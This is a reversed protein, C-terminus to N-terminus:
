WPIQYRWWKWLNISNFKHSFGSSGWWFSERHIKRIWKKASRKKRHTYARALLLKHHSRAVCFKQMCLWMKVFSTGMIYIWFINQLMIWAYNKASAKEFCKLAITFFFYLNILILYERHRFIKSVRPFLPPCLTKITTFIGHPFIKHRLKQGKLKIFSLLHDCFDRKPIKLPHGVISYHTKLEWLPM